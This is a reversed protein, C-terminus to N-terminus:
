EDGNSVQGLRDADLVVVAARRPFVLGQEGWRTLLRSISFLTTGTMQALEENTLNIEVGGQVPKGVQKMLRLLALAVRRAVKETAVECFREQLESLRNSLIQTLNKRIQPYKEVMSQLRSSEWVLAKSQEVARASCTYSFTLSDSFVGVAAGTGAMWLLVENGNPGLRSIKVSGTQIQLLNRAPEGEMFLLENRAFTRLKASSAIERCEQETLGTFLASTTM